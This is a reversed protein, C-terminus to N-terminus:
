KNGQIKIIEEESLKTIDAIEKLSINRKLLENVINIQNEKIGEIKGERKGKRHGEKEAKEMRLMYVYKADLELEEQNMLDGGDNLGLVKEGVEKAILDQRGLEKLEEENATLLVLYLHDKVGKINKDYCLRKYRELNVNLIKFDEYYIKNTATNIIRIEEKPENGLLNHNLNIQIIKNINEWKLNKGKKSKSIKKSYNYKNLCLSLYYMLNREKIINDFNTNIEVNIKESDETRVIVDLMKIKDRINDIPIESYEYNIVEVEKELIDSLILNLFRYDEDKLVVAKFVQDYKLNYFPKIETM